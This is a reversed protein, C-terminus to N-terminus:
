AAEPAQYVDLETSEVEAKMKKREKKEEKKEEKMGDKKKKKMDKKAELEKAEADAKEKKEIESIWYQAEQICGFIMNKNNIANTAFTEQQTMATKLEEIRKNLEEKNMM